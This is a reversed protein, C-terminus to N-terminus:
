GFILMGIIMIWHGVKLLATGVPRVVSFMM